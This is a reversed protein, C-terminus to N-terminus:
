IENLVPLERPQASNAGTPVNDHHNSSCDSSNSLSLLSTPSPNNMPLTPCSRFPYHYAQLKQTIRSDTNISVVWPRVPLNADTRSIVMLNTQFRYIRLGSIAYGVTKYDYWWPSATGYELATSLTAQHSPPRSYDDNKGSCLSEPLGPLKIGM